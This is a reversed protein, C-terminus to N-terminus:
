LEVQEGGITDSMIQSLMGSQEHGNASYISDFLYLRESCRKILSRIIINLYNRRNRDEIDETYVNNIDWTRTLVYPNELETINRPSWLDSGLDAWIHVKSYNASALYTSPTALTVFSDMMREEIAYISENSKAGSKIFRIFERNPNEIAKFKSIIDIFNTASDIIDKCANINEKGAPLTILIELYVKRFFEDIDLAEKSKYNDVWNRIYEYKQLYENGVRNIISDDSLKTLYSIGNEIKLVNKTLIAARIPDMNAILIFLSKVDDENLIIENFDHCLCALVVLSYAYQNDTISRKRSINLVEHGAMRVQDTLIYELVIDNVPSIVCIDSPNVGENLLRVVEKSINEIMDSRLESTNVFISESKCKAKNNNFINHSICDALDQFEKKTAFKCNLIVNEYKNVLEQQIYLPDAGYRVGFGGDPNYMLLATDVSPILEKIFDVQSPTCEELNDVIIHKINKRLYQHYIPDNLLYKNYLFVSLGYDITGEQLSRKIYYDIIVDMDKFISQKILDKNELSNYLRTGIENIPISPLAAKTLNSIISIAIRDSSSNLGLLLGSKNRQHEVLRHMLCQSTEFTHFIPRITNKGILDCKQIVLPWFKTLEKQIFGFYSTIKIEGCGKIDLNSRYILSQVRNLVFVLIQESKINENEIMHKYREIATTTKGSGSCGNVVICNTDFGYNVIKRQIDDM